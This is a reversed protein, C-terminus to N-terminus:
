IPVPVAELQSILQEVEATDTAVVDAAKPEENVRADEATKSEGRAAAAQTNEVKPGEMEFHHIVTIEMKPREEQKFLLAQIDGSLDEIGEDIKDATKIAM